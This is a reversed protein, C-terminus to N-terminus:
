ITNDTNDLKWTAFYWALQNPTSRNVVVEQLETQNWAFISGVKEFCRDFGVCPDVDRLKSTHGIWFRPIRGVHFNCFSVLHFYRSLSKVHIVTSHCSSM